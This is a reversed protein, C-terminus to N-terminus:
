FLLLQFELFTIADQMRINGNADQLIARFVRMLPVVIKPGLITITIKNKRNKNKM